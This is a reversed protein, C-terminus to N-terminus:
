RVEKANRVYELANQIGDNYIWFEYQSNSKLVRVIFPASEKSIVLYDYRKYMPVQWLLKIDKQNFHPLYMRFDKEASKDCESIFGETKQNFFNNLILLAEKKSKNQLNTVVVDVLFVSIAAIFFITVIAKFNKKHAFDIIQFILLVCLLLILVIYLNILGPYKKIFLTNRGGLFLIIDPLSMIVFFLILMLKKSVAAREIRM